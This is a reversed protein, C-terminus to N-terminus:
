CAYLSCKHYVQLVGTTRNVKNKNQQETLAEAKSMKRKGEGQNEESLKTNSNVACIDHMYDRVNM